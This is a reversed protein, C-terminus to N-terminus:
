GFFGPSFKMSGTPRAETAPVEAHLWDAPYDVRVLHALANEVGRINNEVVSRDKKKGFTKEISAKLYAMSQEESFMGLLKFFVAQMIWALDRGARVGLGPPPPPHPTGAASGNGRSFPWERAGLAKTPTCLM